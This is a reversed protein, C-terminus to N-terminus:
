KPYGFLRKYAEIEEENEEDFLDLDYIGYDQEILAYMKKAKSDLSKKIDQDITSKYHLFYYNAIRTESGGVRHIRDLSQLYQACNYSLDFYIAHFCTKHLSISEACAAPNAVLIDLGSKVDIFDDIIRERTIEKKLERLENERPTKGYILGVGFGLKSFKSKILELTGIFNSWILIKKNKERISLVMDELMKLKGSVELSDYSKIIRVLDSAGSLLDEDYNEVAKLLLRPYSVAQRLRIMRGRWLASLLNQNSLYDHKSLEHVKSKIFKYIKEEYPNMKVLCPAHFIAPKLGLDKKRVRYFLPGIREQLMKKAKKNDSAEWLKIKVKDEESIPSEKNWLFEFQNYLDSYGRPMPTGTLICKYRVHKSVRLLTDAWIGGSKKIYHAEDVVFFVNVNDQQLFSCVDDCDNSLTQFTTLYLELNTNAPGYYESKRIKKNGGSLFVVKPERGLTKKFEEKWTQFCSPPGVVFLVNCQKDKKLKEYVALVVSTKGSGPVSFNAGNKLTFLHYAAKIQHHKLKRSLTLIFKNFDDFSARDIDGDKIKKGLTFLSTIEVKRSYIGSIIKKTFDDFELSVNEKNFYDIVKSVDLDIDSSEKVYKNISPVFGYYRLQSQQYKKLTAPESLIVTQKDIQLKM